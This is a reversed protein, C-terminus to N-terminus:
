THEAADDAKVEDAHHRGALSQERANAVLRVYLEGDAADHQTRQNEKKWREIAFAIRADVDQEVTLRLGVPVGEQVARKEIAM